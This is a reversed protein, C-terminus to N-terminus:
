TAYLRKQPMVLQTSKAPYGYWFAKTEAGIGLGADRLIALWELSALQWLSNDGERYYRTDASITTKIAAELDKELNPLEHGCSIKASLVAWPLLGGCERLYAKANDSRGYQDFKELEERIQSPAIEILTLQQGILAAELAYAKLLAVRNSGYQFYLEAPPTAPLYRRLIGVWTETDMPLVRLAHEIVSRVASLVNWSSNWEQTEM